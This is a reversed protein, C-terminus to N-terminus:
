ELTGNLNTTQICKGNTLAALTSHIHIYVCIHTHLHTHTHTHTHAHKM